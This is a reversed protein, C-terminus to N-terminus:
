IFFEFRKNETTMEVRNKKKQGAQNKLSINRLWKTANKMSNGLKRQKRKRM